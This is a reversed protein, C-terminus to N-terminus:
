TLVGVRIRKPTVFPRHILYHTGLRTVVFGEMDARVLLDHESANREVSTVKRILVGQPQSLIKKDFLQNIWSLGKPIYGSKKTM